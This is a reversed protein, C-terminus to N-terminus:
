RLLELYGAVPESGNRKDIVYYYTGDPLQNGSIYIGENGIGEFYLTSNDYGEEVYVLQGARNYIYVINEPFTEICDIHFIDNYGDGNPSVGNFVNIEAEIDVMQSKECGLTDTVTVMYRGAPYNRLEPGVVGNSWMILGVNATDNVHITASGNQDLCTANDM